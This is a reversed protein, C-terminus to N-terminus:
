NGSLPALNSHINPPCPWAGSLLKAVGRNDGWARSFGRCGSLLKEQARLPSEDCHVGAGLKPSAAALVYRSRRLGPRPSVVLVLKTLHFHPWTESMM